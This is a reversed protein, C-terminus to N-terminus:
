APAIRTTGSGLDHTGDVQRARRFYNLRDAPSMAPLRRRPESRALFTMRTSRPNRSAPSGPRRGAAPPTIVRVRVDIRLACLGALSESPSTPHALSEHGLRAPGAVGARSVPSSNDTVTVRIKSQRRNEPKSADCAASARAGRRRGPPRRRRGRRAALVSALRVRFGVQREEVTVQCCGPRLAKGRSTVASSSKGGPWPRGPRPRAPSPKDPGPRDPSPRSM